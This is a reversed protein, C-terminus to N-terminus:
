TGEEWSALYKKQRPTLEEIKISLSSLKLLAVNMDIDDPVKYVQNELTSAREKLYKVSLAQNAFSMD